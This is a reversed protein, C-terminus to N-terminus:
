RTQCDRKKSSEQESRLFNTTKHSRVNGIVSVFVFDTNLQISQKENQYYYYYKSSGDQAFGFGTLFVILYILVIHKKM